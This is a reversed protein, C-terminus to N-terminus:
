GQLSALDPPFLGVSWALPLASAQLFPWPQTPHPHDPLQAAGERQVYDSGGAGGRDRVQDWFSM